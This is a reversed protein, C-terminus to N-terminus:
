AGHRAHIIFRPPLAPIAETEIRLEEEEKEEGAEEAEGDSDGDSDGESEDGNALSVNAPTVPDENTNRPGDHASAVASTTAAGLGGGWRAVVPTSTQDAMRGGPNLLSGRRVGGVSRAEIAGGFRQPYRAPSGSLVGNAVSRRARTGSPPAFLTNVGDENSDDDAEDNNSTISARTRPINRLTERAESMAQSTGRIGPAVNREDGDVDVDNTDEAQNALDAITAAMDVGGIPAAAHGDGIGHNLTAVAVSDADEGQLRRTESRGFFGVRHSLRSFISVRRRQAPRSGADNDEDSDPSGRRRLTGRPPLTATAVAVSRVIGDSTVGSAGATDSVNAPTVPTTVLAVAVNPRIAVNVPTIPSTVVATPATAAVPVNGGGGAPLPATPTDGAGVLGFPVLDVATQGGSEAHLLRRNLRVYELYAEPATIGTDLRTALAQANPMPIGGRGGVSELYIATLLRLEAPSLHGQRPNFLHAM